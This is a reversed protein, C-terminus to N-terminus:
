IQGAELLFIRNIARAILVDVNVGIFVENGILDDFDEPNNVYRLYYDAGDHTVINARKFSGITEPTMRIWRSGEYDDMIDFPESEFREFARDTVHYAMESAAKPPVGYRTVDAMFALTVVGVPTYLVRKGKGPAPNDPDLIGRSQWNQLTKAKLAPIMRLVDAQTFRSEELDFPKAM